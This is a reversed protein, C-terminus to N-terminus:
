EHAPNGKRQKHRYRAAGSLNGALAAAFVVATCVFFATTPDHYRDTYYLGFLAALYFAGCSIPYLPCLGRRKGLSIGPPCSAIAVLPTLITVASPSPDDSRFLSVALLAPVVFCLLAAYGLHPLSELWKLPTPPMTLGLKERIEDVEFWWALWRGFWILVYLLALVLMWPLPSETGAFNLLVGVCCVVEMALFHLASRVLLERGGEAFPITAIGVLAGFVFFLSFQVAVALAESGLLHEMTGDVFHFGRFSPKNGFLNISGAIYGILVLVAMGILGGVVIRVIWAKKMDNM